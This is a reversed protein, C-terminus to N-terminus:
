ATALIGSITNLLDTPTAGPAATALQVFVDLAAGPDPMDALDLAVPRLSRIPVQPARHLLQFFLGRTAPTLKEELAEARAFLAAYDDTGACVLHEFLAWVAAPVERAPGLDVMFAHDGAGPSTVAMWRLTPSMAVPKWAAGARRVATLYTNDGTADNVASLRNLLTLRENPGKPRTRWRALVARRQVDVDTALAALATGRWDRVRDPVAARPPHGQAYSLRLQARFVLAAERAVHANGTRGRGSQSRAGVLDGHLHLLDAWFHLAEELQYTEECDHCFQLLDYDGPGLQDLFPETGEACARLPDGHLLHVPGEQRIFLAQDACIEDIPAGLTRLIHLDRTRPLRPRQFDNVISPNASM